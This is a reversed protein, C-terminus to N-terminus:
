SFPLFSWFCAQLNLWDPLTASREIVVCIMTHAHLLQCVLVLLDALERANGGIEQLGVIDAGAALIVKATQSLPQGRRTGGHLVNYSMVRLGPKVTQSQDPNASTVGSACVFCVMALTLISVVRNKM